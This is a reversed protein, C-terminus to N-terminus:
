KTISRLRHLMMINTTELGTMNRDTYIALNYTNGIMGRSERNSFVRGAREPIFVEPGTEGVLVPENAKTTGGEQLARIFGATTFALAAAAGWAAAAAFNPVPKPVLAIAARVVAEKGLAVLVDAVANKIIDWLSKWTLEQKAIAEGLSEFIPQTYSIITDAYQKYREERKALDDAEKQKLYNLRNIEHQFAAERQQELLDFYDAYTMKQSEVTDNVSAELEKGAKKFEELLKETDDKITIVMEGSTGLEIIKKKIAELTEQTEELKGKLGDVKEKQEEYMVSQVNIAAESLGAYKKQADIAEDSLNGRQTEYSAALKRKDNLEKEQKNLEREEKVIRRTLTNIQDLLIKKNEEAKLLLERNALQKVSQGAAAAELIFANKSEGLKTNLDDSIRWLEEKQKQNKNEIKNLIDYREALAMIENSNSIITTDLKKGMIAADSFFEAVQGLPKAMFNIINGLIQLTEGLVKAVTELLIMLGKNESLKKTFDTIEEVIDYVVPLFANGVQIMLRDVAGTLADFTLEQKEFAENTAGSSNELQGLVENFDKAGEGTLAMVGRLARVNRFLSALQEKSGGASKVVLDLAGKFGLQEIAASGSAYGLEKLTGEMEKSPKLFANVIANFQTTANAANIGQRTMIAISAGLEDFRIGMNAALPISQGIVASLEEGTTKGLKIVTFLKDFAPVLDAATQGYANILTTGVDVATNTDVLAAKAFKASEGVAMVANAPDVSASLAQYLGKTLETATGLRPDLALIEDGMAKINVSSTDVLTSVNRLEKQWENSKAVSMGIAAGIALTTTAAIKGFSQFAGGMRGLSATMQKSGRMWQSTDFIGKAIVAGAFFSM